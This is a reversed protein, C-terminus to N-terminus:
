RSSSMNSGASSVLVLFPISNGSLRMQCCVTLVTELMECLEVDGLLHGVASSQCIDIVNVIRLLVVEDGASDSAEFKCHALANSLEVLAKSTEACNPSILGSAFFNLLSALATSTIPGTALPSRILALFPALLTSLSISTVDLTSLHTLAAPYTANSSGEVDYITRKLQDFGGMLVAEQKEHTPRGTKEGGSPPVRLGMSTALNSPRAPGPLTSAWRSNKRMASTVSLIESFVLHVPTVALRFASVSAQEDAMIGPNALHLTHAFSASTADRTSESTTWMGLAHSRSCQQNWYNAVAM